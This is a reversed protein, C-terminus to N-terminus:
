FSSNKFNLCIACNISLLGFQVCIAHKELLMCFLLLYMSHQSM